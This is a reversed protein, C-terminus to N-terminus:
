MGAMALPGTLDLVRQGAELGEGGIMIVSFDERSISIKAQNHTEMSEMVPVFLDDAQRRPCVISCEHATISVNTFPHWYQWPKSPSSVDKEEDPSPRQLLLQIISQVFHSYVSLPIHILALHTDQFLSCPMM